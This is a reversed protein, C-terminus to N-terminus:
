IEFSGQCYVSEYVDAIKKTNPKNQRALASMFFERERKEDLRITACMQFDIALDNRPVVEFVEILWIVQSVLREFDPSYHLTDM